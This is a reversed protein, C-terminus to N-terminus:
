LIIKKIFHGFVKIIRILLSISRLGFPAHRYIFKARAPLYDSSRLDFFIFKLDVLTLRKHKKIGGTLDTNNVIVCEENLIIDFKNATARLGFDTDSFYQPFSSEDLLGICEIVKMPILTGMGPSWTIETKMTRTSSSELIHLPGHFPWSVYGGMSWIQGDSDLVKSIFIASSNRYHSAAMSSIFNPSVVVDDNLLIVASYQKDYFYSTGLNIAKTWWLDKTSKLEICYPANTKLAETVSPDGGDNVVLISVDPKCQTELSKICDLLASTRQYTPIIIGIKGKKILFIRLLFELLM